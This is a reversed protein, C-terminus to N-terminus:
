TGANSLIDAPCVFAPAFDKYFRRALLRTAAGRFALKLRPSPGGLPISIGTDIVRRRPRHRDSGDTRYTWPQYKEQRLAQQGEDHQQTSKWPGRRINHTDGDQALLSGSRARM